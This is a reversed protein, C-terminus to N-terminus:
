GRSSVASIVTHDRKLTYRRRDPHRPCRQSGRDIANVSSGMDYVLAPVYAMSAAMVEARDSHNFGDVGPYADRTLDKMSNELWKGFRTSYAGIVCVDRARDM